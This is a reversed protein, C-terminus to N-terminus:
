NPAPVWFAFVLLGLAFGGFVILDAVRGRVKLMGADRDTLVLRLLFAVAVSAGLVICGAHVSSTAVVILGIAMGCIVLSIPWQPLHVAASGFIPTPKRSPQAHDTTTHEAGSAVYQRHVARESASRLPVVNDVPSQRGTQSAPDTQSDPPVSSDGEPERRRGASATM